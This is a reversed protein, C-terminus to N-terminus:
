LAFYSNIKKQFFTRNERQKENSEGYLKKNQFINEGYLKKNQTLSM